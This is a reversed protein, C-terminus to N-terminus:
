KKAPPPAKPILGLQGLLQLSNTYTTLRALKDGRFEAIDLGNVKVPRNSAPLVPLPGKQTGSTTTEALVFGDVTWANDVSVALDPVATVLAQMEIQAQAKGKMDIPSAIAERVFDDTLSAVYAKKDKKPWATPWGSKYVQILNEEAVDRKAVLIKPEGSPPTGGDRAKGPMRGTQILATAQDVYVHERKVLGAEDFWFVGAARFSIKKKTEAHTGTTIWEAVVVDGLYFERVHTAKADPSVTHVRKVQELIGERGRAELWGDAMPVAKVGDPTYLAVHKDLENAELTASMARLTRQQLEQKSLTPAPAAPTATAM